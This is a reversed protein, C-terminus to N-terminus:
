NIFEDTKIVRAFLGDLSAMFVHIVPQGSERFLKLVKEINMLAKYSNYLESKGGEFYDNQVDIILLAKKM